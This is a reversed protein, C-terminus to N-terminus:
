IAGVLSRGAGGMEYDGGAAWLNAIPDHALARAPGTTGDTALPSNLMVSTVRHASVLIARTRLSLQGTFNLCKLRSILSTAEIPSVKSRSRAHSSTRSWIAESAHQHAPM